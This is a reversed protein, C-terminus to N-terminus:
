GLLYRMKTEKIFRWHIRMHAPISVLTDAQIVITEGDEPRMEAEGSFFYCTEPMEYEKQMEGADSAWVPWSMVELENLRKDSPKHEIKLTDANVNKSM